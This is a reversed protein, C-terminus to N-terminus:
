NAAAMVEALTPEDSNPSVPPEEFDYKRASEAEYADEAKKLNDLDLQLQAFTFNQSLMIPAVMFNLRPVCAKANAVDPCCGALKDLDSEYDV